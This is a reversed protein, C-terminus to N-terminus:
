FPPLAPHHQRRVQAVEEASHRADEAGSGGRGGAGPGLVPPPQLPTANASRSNEGPQRSNKGPQQVALQVGREGQPSHALSCAGDPTSAGAKPAQRRSLVLCPRCCSRSCSRRREVCARSAYRGCARLRASAASRALRAQLKRSRLEERNQGSPDRGLHSAAGEERRSFMLQTATLLNWKHPAAAEAMDPPEASLLRRPAICRLARLRPTSLRM